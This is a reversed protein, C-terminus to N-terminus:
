REHETHADRCIAENRAPDHLGGWHKYGKGYPIARLAYAAGLTFRAARRFASAVM